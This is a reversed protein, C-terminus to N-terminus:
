INIPFAMSVVHSSTVQLSVLPVPSEELGLGRFVCEVWWGWLPPQKLFVAKLTLYGRSWRSQVHVSGLYPRQIVKQSEPQRSYLDLWRAAVWSFRQVYTGKSISDAMKWDPTAQRGKEEAERQGEPKPVLRSYSPPFEQPKSSVANLYPHKFM